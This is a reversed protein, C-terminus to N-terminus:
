AAIKKTLLFTAKQSLSANGTDSLITSTADIFDNWATVVLPNKIEGKLVTALEIFESIVLKCDEFLKIAKTIKPKLMTFTALIGGTAPAGVGLLVGLWTPIQVGAIASTDGAFLLIPFLCLLLFFKFM